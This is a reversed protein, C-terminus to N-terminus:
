NDEAISQREDPQEKEGLEDYREPSYMKWQNMHPSLGIIVPIEQSATTGALIYSTLRVHGELVVLDDQSTGLIILPPLQVGKEIAKVLHWYPENGMGFIEKGTKVTAAGDGARLTGGSLGLWYSYVIYRIDPLEERQLRARYWRIDDPLGAFWSTKKGYGRAERLIQRRLTNQVSDSIDPKTIISQNADSSKLASRVKAGFRESTLEGALFVAIMDDETAPELLKM